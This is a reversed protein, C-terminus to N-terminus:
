HVIRQGDGNLARYLNAIDAETAEALAVLESKVDPDEIDEPLEEALLELAAARQGLRQFALAAMQPMTDPDIEAFDLGDALGFLGAALALAYARGPKPAPALALLPQAANLAGAVANCLESTWRVADLGDEARKLKLPEGTLYGLLDAPDPRSLDMQAGAAVLIPQWAHLKVPTSTRLLAVLNDIYTKVMGVM